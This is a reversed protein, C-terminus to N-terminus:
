MHDKFLDWLAAPNAVEPNNFLLTVFLQLTVFTSAEAMTDIWNQDDAFYGRVRCSEQFTTSVVGNILKLFIFGTVGCVKKLLIRLFLREGSSPMASFIRGITDSMKPRKRRTWILSKMDWVYYTPMDAYTLSSATPYPTGDVGSGRLTASLPHQIEQQVCAFYGTLSTHKEQAAEFATAEEGERYTVTQLGPLHLQLRQVAPSRGQMDFGFIRWFAECPGVYRSDIYNAIEDRPQQPGALGGGSGGAVAPAAPALQMAHGTATVGTLRVSVCDHGKYVYEYLYKM